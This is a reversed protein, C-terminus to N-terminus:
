LQWWGSAEDGPCHGPTEQSWPGKEAVSERWTAAVLGGVADLHVDGFAKCCRGKSTLILLALILSGAGPKDELARWSM